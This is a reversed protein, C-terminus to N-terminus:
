GVTWRHLKVDYVLVIVNKRDYAIYECDYTEIFNYAKLLHAYSLQYTFREELDDELRFYLPKIAGNPKFSVIVEVPHGSPHNIIPKHDPQLFPM